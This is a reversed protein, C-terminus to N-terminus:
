IFKGNKPRALRLAGRGSAAKPKRSRAGAATSQVFELQQMAIVINWSTHLWDSDSAAAKYCRPLLAALRLM